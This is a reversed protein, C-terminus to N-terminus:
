VGKWAPSEIFIKVNSGVDLSVLSMGRKVDNAQAASKSRADVDRAAMTGITLSVNVSVAPVPM